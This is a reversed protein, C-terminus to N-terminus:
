RPSWRRRAEVRDAAEQPSETAEASGIPPRTPDLDLRSVDHELRRGRRADLVAVALLLAGVLVIAGAAFVLVTVMGDRHGDVRTPM